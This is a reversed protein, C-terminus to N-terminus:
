SVPNLTCLHAGTNETLPRSEIRQRPNELCLIKQTAEKLIFGRIKGNKEKSPQAKGAFHSISFDDFM